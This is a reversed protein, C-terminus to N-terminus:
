AEKVLKYAGGRGRRRKSVVLRERSVNMPSFAMRTRLIIARMRTKALLMTVNTCSMSPTLRNMAAPLCFLM